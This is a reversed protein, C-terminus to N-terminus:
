FRFGGGVMFGSLGIDIDYTDDDILGEVEMNILRYGVFVDFWPTPAVELRAEVDLLSAEVDEIDVAVYGVEGVGRVPGVDVGGRLFLMPIPAALEAEETAIGISDRVTMSLDFFDAAIGPALTVPGLEIDFAWAVKINTLEFTSFVSTGATLNDGFNATLTGQGEDEFMFGSASLTATGFDLELRGFPTGQDDGLGLAPEIDQQINTNNTGGVYGFDGDLALQAYGAQAEVEFTYCSPLALLVPAAVVLLFRNRM